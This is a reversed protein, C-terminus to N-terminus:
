LDKSNLEVWKIVGTEPVCNVYEWRAEGAKLISVEHWTMFKRDEGFRKAHEIAGTFIALHSPSTSSWQELDQWNRFFGAGCTERVPKGNGDVNQLFRLGLTGTNTPNNWLFRMGEMLRQQLSTEYAEREVEDCKDWWQGSRIHCMNTFNTGTLHQGLSKPISKPSPIDDPPEFLDHASAPIRDRGSGWYGTLEHAPQEVNPLRSIGPKHDLRAYNTELHDVPTIFHEQWLGIANKSHLSHWWDVLSLSDLRTQFAKADAWYAVWVKANPVDFGETVILSDVVNPPNEQGNLWHQVQSEAKQATAEAEVNDRDHNQVGIYLTHIHTVNDPLRLLWRKMPIKHGKPQRLPYRREENPAGM